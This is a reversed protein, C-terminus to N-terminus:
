YASGIYLESRAVQEVGVLNADVNHCSAGNASAEDIEKQSFGGLPSSNQFGVPRDLYQDVVRASSAARVNLHPVPKSRCEATSYFLGISLSRSTEQPLSGPKGEERRPRAVSAENVYIERGSDDTTATIPRNATAELCLTLFLLTAIATTAMTALELRKRM